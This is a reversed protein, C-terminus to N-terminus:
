IQDSSYSNLSISESSGETKLFLVKITLNKSQHRCFFLSWSLNKIEERPLVKKKEDQLHWNLPSVRCKRTIRILIWQIWIRICSNLFFLFFNLFNLQFFRNKKFNCISRRSSGHFLKVLPAELDGSFVDLQEFHEDKWFMVNGKKEKCHTIKAKRSGSGSQSDSNPRSGWFPRGVDKGSCQHQWVRRQQLTRTTFSKKRPSGTYWAHYEQM